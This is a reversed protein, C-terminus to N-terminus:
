LAGVSRVNPERNREEVHLVDLSGQPKIHIAQPEFNRPTPLGFTSGTPTPEFEILHDDHREQLMNQPFGIM